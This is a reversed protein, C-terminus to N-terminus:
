LQSQTQCLIEKKYTKFIEGYLNYIPSCDILPGHIIKYCITFLDYIGARLMYAKHLQEKSAEYKNAVAWKSLTIDIIPQLLSFYQLYFPNTPIECLMLRFCTILTDNSVEKDKDVLDDLIQAVDFYQTCLIAAAQNNFLENLKKNLGETYETM